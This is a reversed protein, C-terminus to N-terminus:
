PMGTGGGIDLWVLGRSLTRRAKIESALLGLMKKRGKLLGNRTKDYVAAQGNYFKDLRSQQGKNEGLTQFFCCYIFTVLSRLPRIPLFTGIFDLLITICTSIFDLLRERTLLLGQM